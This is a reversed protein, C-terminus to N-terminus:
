QVKKKRISHKNGKYTQQQGHRDQGQIVPNSSAGFQNNGEQAMNYRIDNYTQQQGGQQNQQWQQFEEKQWTQYEKTYEPRALGMAINPQAQFAPYHGGYQGLMPQQVGYPYQVFQAQQQGYQQQHRFQQQQCQYPNM